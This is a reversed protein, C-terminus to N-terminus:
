RTVHLFGQGPIESGDQAYLVFKYFYVGDEADNGSKTKGDWIPNPSSDEFMVNGWRNLIILDIKDVNETEIFWFDNAQDGNPSIVNPVEWIPPYIVSVNIKLTTTDNCGGGQSAILTVTFEGATTYLSQVASLDNTTATLGNGFDWFYTVGNQSLNSFTINLPALGSSPNASMAAIPANLTTVQISDNASCVDDTVTLYYWGPSLSNWVSNSSSNPNNAGPGNWAYSVPGNVATQGIVGASVGGTPNCFNSATMSIPDITLSQDVILVGNATATNACGDTVTVNFPIQEGNIGNDSITISTGTTGDSWVYSYPNPANSNMVVTAQASGPMCKVYLTDNPMISIDPPTVNHVLAVSDIFDNGCGDTVTVYHMVTIPLTSSAPILAPNTTAGFDWLFTYTPISGQFNSIQVPAQNPACGTVLTDPMNFTLDYQDVIYLTLSDYLTDGCVSITYGMIQIWEMPETIGDDIPTINFVLTDVGIPFTVSGNLNTFDATASATGSYTISFTQVSGISSEPRIFLLDTSTCGEALTTDTFSGSFLSAQAEITVANSSFSNAELFVGSDLAQDTVNCIALKIHYTGGCVLGSLAVMAVTSGNYGQGSFAGNVTTFYVANAQWNPDLAACTSAPGGTPFGSNVTNITVPINGGPVLALNVAGNTYPGSLGPGSLFFGFADNYSSCTYGTYESSAFVYNFVLSDGVAVFDFELIAGNTPNGSAIASLDPDTIVSAGATKLYVGSAFPFGTASFTQGAAQISNANAASGNFTINSAVVGSGILVDQVLQTPTLTNQYTFTQSQSSFCFMIASVAFIFKPIRYFKM